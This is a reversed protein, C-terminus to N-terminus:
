GHCNCGTHGCGEHHTHGAACEESCFAKGDKHVAKETSVKCVCDSCACKVDDTAM